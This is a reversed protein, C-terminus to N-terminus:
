GGSEILEALKSPIEQAAPPRPVTQLWAYIDAIEEDSIQDPPFATMAELPERYQEVVRELPVITMAITPGVLGEGRDGHCVNCGMDFFLSQGNTPNGVAGEEVEAEEEGGFDGEIPEPASGAKATFWEDYAAPSLARVTYIMRAHDRGCYEACQSAFDGEETVRVWLTQVRGPVADLKTLFQPTYFAHLVDASAINFRIMVGTPVTVIPTNDAQQLRGEAVTDTGNFVRMVEDGARHAIPVTGNVAREVTIVDGTRASVRMHEVGLKLTMFPVVLSPDELTIETDAPNNSINGALQTGLPVAYAFAWAWQRGQVDVIVVEEDDEAAAQIDQLVFFSVIFLIVVIVTPIGTWLIEATANHAVQTPLEDAAKRKYRFVVWLIMAEVIIFVIVGIALVAFFLARISDGQESVAEPLAVQAGALETVGALVLLALAAAGMVLQFRGRRTRTMRPGAQAAVQKGAQRLTGFARVRGSREEGIAGPQVSSALAKPTLLIWERRTQAM